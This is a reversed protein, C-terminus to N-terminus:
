AASCRPTGHRSSSAPRLPGSPELLRPPWGAGGAQWAVPLVVPAARRLMLALLQDQAPDPDPEGRADLPEHQRHRFLAAIV